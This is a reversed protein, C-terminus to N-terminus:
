IPSNRVNKILSLWLPRAIYNAVLLIMLAISDYPYLINPFNFAENPIPAAFTSV